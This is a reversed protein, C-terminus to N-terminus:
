SSILGVILATTALASMVPLTRKAYKYTWTDWIHENSHLKRALPILGRGLGFGVGTLVGPVPGHGDAVLAGVVVIYPAAGTMYTRAGTGMEFGFMLAGSSPQMGLVSQRVQRRSQPFPVAVLGIDRLLVLLATLGVLGVALWPAPTPILM